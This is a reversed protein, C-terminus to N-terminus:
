CRGRDPADGPPAQEEAEAADLDRDYAAPSYGDDRAPPAPAKEPFDTV